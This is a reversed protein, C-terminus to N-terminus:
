HARVEYMSKLVKQGELAGLFHLKESSRGKQPGLDCFTSKGLRMGIPDEVGQKALLLFSSESFTSLPFAM